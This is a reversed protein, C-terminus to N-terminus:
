YGCLVDQQGRGRQVRVQAGPHGDRQSVKAMMKEVVQMDSQVERSRPRDAGAALRGACARWPAPTVRARPRRDLQLVPGCPELTLACGVQILCGGTRKTHELAKWFSRLWRGNTRRKREEETEDGDRPTTFENYYNPNYTALVL